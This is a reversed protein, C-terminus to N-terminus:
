ELHGARSTSTRSGSSFVEDLLGVREFVERTVIMACGSVADVDRVLAAAVEARHARHHLHRMRGTAVSYRIGASEFRDPQHRSV